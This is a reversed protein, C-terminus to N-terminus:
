KFQIHSESHCLALYLREVVVVSYDGSEKALKVAADALKLQQKINKNRFCNRKSLDELSKIRKRLYKKKNLKSM